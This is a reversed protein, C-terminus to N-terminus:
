GIIRMLLHGQSKILAQQWRSLKEIEDSQVLKQEKCDKYNQEKTRSIDSARKRNFVQFLSIDNIAFLAKGSKKSIIKATM